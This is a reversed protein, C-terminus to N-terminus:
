LRVVEDTIKSYLQLSRCGDHADLESVASMDGDTVRVAGARLLLSTLEAREGEPCFLGVTQLHHKEGRLAAIINEKPLPKVAVSNYLASIELRSDNKPLIVFSEGRIEEAAAKGFGVSDLRAAHRLLTREGRIGIPLEPFKKEEERMIEAFRAAFNRVAEFDDTNLYIQQCSSCLLQNTSLINRALYALDGDSVEGSVYGFSLKHGWEILRVGPKAMKRVAAVAEDGGWVVIGDAFDSLRIMTDIDDSPTDFVYIYESLAPEAECLARLLAVTLGNDASPLKLININGALLGEIVSYAPLGEANGAAIHFLVGLSLRRKIIKIGKDPLTYEETCPLEAKLKNELAQRSMLAAAESIKEESVGFAAARSDYEGSLVRERLKECASIVKEPSLPERALTKPIVRAMAKLINDRCGERHLRGFAFIKSM